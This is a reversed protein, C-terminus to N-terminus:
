RTPCGRFAVPAPASASGFQRIDGARHAASLRGAQAARLQHELARPQGWQIRADRRQQLLRAGGADGHQAFQVEKRARQGIQPFGLAVAGLSSAMVPVLPLVVVVAIVARSTCRAPLRTAIAPLM